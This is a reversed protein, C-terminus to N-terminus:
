ISEGYLIRVSPAHTHKRLTKRTCTYTHAHVHTYVIANVVTCIHSYIQAQTGRTNGRTHPTPTPCMGHYWEEGGLAYLHDVDVSSPLTSRARVDDPSDQGTLHQVGASAVTNMGILMSYEVSEIEQTFTYSLYTLVKEM